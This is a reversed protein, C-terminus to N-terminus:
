SIDTPYGEPYYEEASSVRLTRCDCTQYCCTSNCFHMLRIVPCWLELRFEHSSYFLRFAIIRPLVLGHSSTHTPQPRRSCLTYHRRHVSQRSATVLKLCLLRDVSSTRRKARAQAIIPPEPSLATVRLVGLAAQPLAYAVLLRASSASLPLSACGEAPASGWLNPYDTFLQCYPAVRVIRRHFLLRSTPRM